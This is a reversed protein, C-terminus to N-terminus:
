VVDAYFVVQPTYGTFLLDLKPRRSSITVTISVIRLDCLFDPVIGRHHCLM